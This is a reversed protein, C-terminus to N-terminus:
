SFNASALTKTRQLFPFLTDLIRTEVLHRRCAQAMPVTRRHPKVTATFICLGYFTSQGGDDLPGPCPGRLALVPTRTGRPANHPKKQMHVAAGPELCPPAFLIRQEDRESWADRQYKETFTLPTELRHGLVGSVEDVRRGPRALYRM